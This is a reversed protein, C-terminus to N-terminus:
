NFPLDEMDAANLDMFGEDASDSSTFDSKKGDAFHIDEITLNAGRMKAKVKSGDSATIDSEYERIILSGFFVYRLGKRLIRKFYDIRKPGGFVTCRVFQTTNGTQDAVNFNLCVRTEDGKVFTREEVDTSLRGIVTIKNM